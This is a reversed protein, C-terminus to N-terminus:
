CLLVGFDGRTMSGCAGLRPSLSAESDDDGNRLAPKEVRREMARGRSWRVLFLLMVFDPRLLDWGSKIGEHHARRAVQPPAGRDDM